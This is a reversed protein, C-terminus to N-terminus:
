RSGAHIAITGRSRTTPIPKPRFATARSSSRRGASSRRRPAAAGSRALGASGRPAGGRADHSLLPRSRPVARRASQVSADAPDARGSGMARDRHRQRRDRHRRCDRGRRREGDADEHVAQRRQASRRGARDSPAQQHGSGQRGLGLVSRRDRVARLRDRDQDSELGVDRARDHVQRRHDQGQGQAAACLQAAALPGDGGAGGGIEPFDAQGDCGRREVTASAEATGQRSCCGRRRGARTRSSRMSRHASPGWPSSRSGWRGGM